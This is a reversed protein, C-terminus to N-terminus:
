HESSQFDTLYEFDEGRGGDLTLFPHFSYIYLLLGKQPSFIRPNFLFAMTIIKMITALM